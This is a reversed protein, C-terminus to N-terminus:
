GHLHRARRRGHISEHDNGQRLYATAGGGAQYAYNRGVVGKGTAADYPEGIGSHLLLHVNGLAYASLIILDAPQELERGRADLYTVSVAKKGTSDLNVKLM